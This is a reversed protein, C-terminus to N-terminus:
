RGINLAIPAVAPVRASKAYRVAAPAGIRAEVRTQCLRLRIGDGTQVGSPMTAIRGTRPDCINAARTTVISVGIVLPPGIREGKPTESKASDACRCQPRPRPTRASNGSRTRRSTRGPESWSQRRFHSDRESCRYSLRYLPSDADTRLRSPDVFLGITPSPGIM